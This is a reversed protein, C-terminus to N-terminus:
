VKLGLIIIIMMMMGLFFCLSHEFELEPFSKTLYFSYTTTSRSTLVIDVLSWHLTVCNFDFTDVFVVKM